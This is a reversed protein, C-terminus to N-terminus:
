KLVGNVIHIYSYIDGVFYPKYSYIDVVLHNVLIYSYIYGNHPYVCQPKDINDM